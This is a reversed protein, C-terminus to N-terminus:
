LEASAYFVYDLVYSDGAGGSFLDYRFGLTSVATQGSSGSINAYVGTVQTGITPISRMPVPFTFAPSLVQGPGTAPFRLSLNVLGFYRQCLAYEGSLSRRAFPTAIGGKQLQVGAISLTNSKSACLNMQGALGVYNGALWTGATPAALSSGVALGILLVIGATNTTSWTGSTAGPVVITKLEWTNAANIAVSLVFSRTADGNRLSIPISGTSNSRVWFSITVPAANATGWGLDAVCLGELSQQFGIVAGSAPVYASPVTFAIARALGPPAISTVGASIATGGPSNILRWCDVVQQNNVSANAIDRQNILFEPNILRNVFGESPVGLAERWDGRLVDTSPALVTLSLRKSAQTFDVRAGANSSSIVTDRSVTNAATYTGRGLEFEGTPRGVPNVAECLYHVTSGVPVKESFTSFGPDAGVVTLDGTGLTVCAEVIRNDFIVSM